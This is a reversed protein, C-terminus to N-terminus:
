AGVTVNQKLQRKKLYILLLSIAAPTVGQIRSAMGLSTPRVQELKARAENSLGDIIAYDFDEPIPTKESRKLREIDDKQLKLFKKIPEKGYKVIIVVLIIFNIYRLVLDYTERWPATATETAMAITGSFHLLVVSLLTIFSLRTTFILLKTKM